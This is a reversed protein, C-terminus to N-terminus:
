PDLSDDYLAGLIERAWPKEKKLFLGMSLGWEINFILRM